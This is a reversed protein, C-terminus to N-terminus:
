RKENEKGKHRGFDVGHIDRDDQVQSFLRRVVAFVVVLGAFGAIIWWTSSDM